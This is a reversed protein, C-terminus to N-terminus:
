KELEKLWYKYYDYGYELWFYTRESPAEGYEEM